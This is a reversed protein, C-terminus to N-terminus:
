VSLTRGVCNLVRFVRFAVFSCLVCFYVSYFSVISVFCAFVRFLCFEFFVCCSVSRTFSGYFVVRIPASYLWTVLVLFSKEPKAKGWLHHTVMTVNDVGRMALLVLHWIGPAAFSVRPNVLRSAAFIWIMSMKTTRWTLSPRGWQKQRSTQFKGYTTATWDNYTKLAM